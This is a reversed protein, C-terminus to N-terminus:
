KKRREIVRQLEAVKAQAADGPEEIDRMGHAAAEAGSSFLPVSSEYDYIAPDVQHAHLRVAFNNVMDHCGVWGACLFDPTRHCHFLGFAGAEVQATTEGDYVPLKEYESEEWVGSPVDRRYPCSSCPSQRVTIKNM